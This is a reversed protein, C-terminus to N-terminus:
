FVIRTVDAITALGWKLFIAAMVAMGFIRVARSRASIEAGVAAVIGGAYLPFVPLLPVLPLLALRRASWRDLAREVGVVLLAGAGLFIASFSVLGLWVPSLETFDFGDPDFIMSGGVSWLLVAWVAARVPVSAPLCSRAGVYMWALAVTAFGVFLILGITGDLTFQNVVAEDDTIRGDLRDDSTLVLVRMLLRGLAGATLGVALGVFAAGALVRLHERILDGTTGGGAARAGRRSTGAMSERAVVYLWVFGV